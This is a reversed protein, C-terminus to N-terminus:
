FYKFTFAHSDPFSYSLSPLSELTVRPVWNSALFLNKSLFSHCALANQFFVHTRKSKALDSTDPGCTTQYFPRTSLSPKSISQCANACLPFNRWTRWRQHPASINLSLHDKYRLLSSITGYPSPHAVPDSSLVLSQCSFSAGQLCLIPSPGLGLMRLCHCCWCLPLWQHEGRFLTSRARSSILPHPQHSSTMLALRCLMQCSQSRKSLSPATAPPCRADLVFKLNGNKLSVQNYLLLM